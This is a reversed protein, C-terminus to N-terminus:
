RLPPVTYNDWRAQQAEMEAQSAAPERSRLEAMSKFYNEQGVGGPSFILLLRGPDTAANRFYHPLTPPVAIFDGRKARHTEDGVRMEFEGDLIYFAEELVYHLHDRTGFGPQCTVELITSGGGPRPGSVKVVIRATAQEIADGSGAPVILGHTMEASGEM